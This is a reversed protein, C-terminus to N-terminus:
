QGECDPWSHSEPDCGPIVFYYNSGVRARGSNPLTDQLDGEWILLFGVSHEKGQNPFTPIPPIGCPIQKTIVGTPNETHRHTLSHSGLGYPTPFRHTKRGGSYDLNAGTDGADVALADSRGM